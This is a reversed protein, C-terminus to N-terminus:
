IIFYILNFNKIVKPEKVFELIENIQSVYHTELNNEM